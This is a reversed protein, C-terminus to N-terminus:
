NSRFFIFILYKPFKLTDFKSFDALTGLLIATMKM